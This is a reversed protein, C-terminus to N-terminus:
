IPYRRDCFGDADQLAPSITDFNFRAEQRMRAADREGTTKLARYESRRVKVGEKQENPAFPTYKQFDVNFFQDAVVRVKADTTTLPTPNHNECAPQPPTPLGVPNSSM